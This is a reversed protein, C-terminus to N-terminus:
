KNFLSPPTRPNPRVLAQIELFRDSVKWEGRPIGRVTQRLASIRAEDNPHLREIFRLLAAPDFGAQSMAVAALADAKLNAERRERQASIPTLGGFDSWRGPGRARGQALMGAFEAEDNAAILLTVPVFIYRGPLVVPEDADMAVVEFTFGPGLRVGLQAVYNQVEPLDVPTTSRRVEAAMERGLAAEKQSVPNQAGLMLPLLAVLVSRM